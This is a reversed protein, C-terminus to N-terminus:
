LINGIKYSDDKALNMRIDPPITHHITRSIMDLTLRRRLNYDAIHNHSHRRIRRRRRFTCKRVQSNRRRTLSNNSKTKKERVPHKNTFPPLLRCSILFQGPSTSIRKPFCKGATRQFAWGSSVAPRTFLRANTVIVCRARM